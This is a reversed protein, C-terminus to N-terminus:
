KKTKDKAIPASLPLTKPTGKMLKKAGPSSLLALLEVTKKENKKM